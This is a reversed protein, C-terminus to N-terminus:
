YLVVLCLALVLMYRVRQCKANAAISDYADIALVRPSMNDYYRLGHVSQLDTLYHVVLPRGRRNGLNCEPGHLLTPM